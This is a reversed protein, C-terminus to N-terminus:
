APIITTPSATIVDTSVQMSSGLNIRLLRSLNKLLQNVNEIGAQLTRLLTKIYWGKM